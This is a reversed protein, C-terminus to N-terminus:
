RSVDNGSVKQACFCCESKFRFGCGARVLAGLLVAMALILKACRRISCRSSCSRFLRLVFSSRVLWSLDIFLPAFGTM